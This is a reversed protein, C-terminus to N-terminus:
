KEEHYLKYVNEFYDVMNNYAKQTNFAMPEAKHVAEEIAKKFDLLTYYLYIIGNDEKSGNILSEENTYMNHDEFIADKIPFYYYTTGYEDFPITVNFCVEDNIANKSKITSNCFKLNEWPIKISITNGIDKKYSADDIVTNKFLVYRKDSIPKEMFENNEFKLSHIICESFIANWGIKVNSIVNDKTNDYKKKFKCGDFRFHGCISINEISLNNIVCRGFLLDDVRAIENSCTNKNFKLYDISSDTFYVRAHNNATVGVLMHSIKCDDFHISGIDNISVHNFNRDLWVNCNNIDCNKFIVSTIPVRNTGYEEEYKSLNYYILNNFETTGNITQGKIVLKGLEM